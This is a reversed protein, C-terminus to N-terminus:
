DEAPTADYPDVDPVGPKVWKLIPFYLIAGIVMAGLAWRISNFGEESVQSYIAFSIIILPFLTM